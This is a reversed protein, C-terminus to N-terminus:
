FGQIIYGDVCKAFQDRLQECCEKTDGTDPDQGEMVAIVKELVPVMLQAEDPYIIQSNDGLRMYTFMGRMGVNALELPCYIIDLIKQSHYSLDALGDLDKNKIMEKVKQVKAMRDFSLGITPGLNDMVDLFM